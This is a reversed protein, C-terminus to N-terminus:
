SNTGTIENVQEAMDGCIRFNRVNATQTTGGNIYCYLRIENGAEWGAIDQSMTVYSTTSNSQTFGVAVDGNYIKGFATYAADSVQLDFKIRLTKSGKVYPGLTITKVEVYSKSTTGEISDHSLIVTDSVGIYAYIIEKARFGVDGNSNLYFNPTHMAGAADLTIGAISYGDTVKKTGTYIADAAITWGGILGSTATVVGAPTVRFPATARNAYTAGAYIPYDAPALGSSTAATGTDKVLKVSDITWGGITGSSAVIKGKLYVNQSYLGYGSLAGMTADTIGDLKGLRAKINTNTWTPGNVGDLVDIYPAQTDSATIYISGQRATDTSNGIRVFDDGAAPIDSGSELDIRFYGSGVATVKGEVLKIDKGTWAQCRLYDNVAFPIPNNTGDEDVTVDYIDGSVLSAGSAKASDSVWLSGNTARIQNIILEYINMRRRVTLNDLELTYLNSAYNLKWGSGAFGSIYSETLSIGQNYKVIGNGGVIMVPDTTSGNLSGALIINRIASTRPQIVLHGLENSPSWGEFDESTTYIHADHDSDIFTAQDGRIYKTGGNIQLLGTVNLGELSTELRKVGNYYLEVAAAPIFKARLPNGIIVEQANDCNLYLIGALSEIKAWGASFKLVSNGVPLEIGNSVTKLKTINNYKLEVGQSETVKIFNTDLSIVSAIIDIGDGASYNGGAPLQGSGLVTTAAARGQYIRKNRYIKPVIRIKTNLTTM